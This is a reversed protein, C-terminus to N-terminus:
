ELFEECDAAPRRRAAREAKALALIGGEAYVIVPEYARELAKISVNEDMLEHIRNVGSFSALMLTIAYYFGTKITKRSIGPLAEQLAHIFVGVTKQMHAELVHSNRESQGVLAILRAHNLWGRDERSLEVYPHMFARLIAGVSVPGGANRLQALSKERRGVIVDLRRDIVARFLQEKTGFHYSLLNLRVGALETISRTSVGEYGREAFLAEAADLIREPTSGAPSSM